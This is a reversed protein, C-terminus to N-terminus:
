GHIDRSRKEGGGLFITRETEIQCRWKLESKYQHYLNVKIGESGSNELGLIFLRLLIKRM